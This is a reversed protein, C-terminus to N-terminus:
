RYAAWAALFWSPFDNSTGDPLAAGNAIRAGVHRDIYALATPSNLTTHFGMIRLALFAIANVRAIIHRYAVNNGGAATGIAVGLSNQRSGSTPTGTYDSVASSHWEATGLQAQTYPYALPADIDAQTIVFHQTDEAFVSNGAPAGSAYQAGQITMALAPAMWSPRNLREYGYTIVSKRWSCHGGNDNFVGGELVREAADISQQILRDDIADKETSSLTNLCLALLAEAYQYYDGGYLPGFGGPGRAHVNRSLVNWTNKWDTFVFRAALTSYAPVAIGTASLNPLSTIPLKQSKRARSVKSGAAPAPRYADAAPAATVFTFPVLESIAPRADSAVGSLVSVAKVLTGERISLASGTAGPDINWSALYPFNNTAIFEDYGQWLRPNVATTVVGHNYQQKQAITTPNQSPFAQLANGPNLELGHMQTLGTTGTTSLTRDAKASVPQVNTVTAAAAGTLLWPEGLVYSGTSVIGSTANLTASGFAISASGGTQAAALSATQVNSYTTGTVNVAKTRFTITGASEGASDWSLNPSTGTLEGTKDVGDLLFYDISVTAGSAAGLTLLVIGGVVYSSADLTPQASFVPLGVVPAIYSATSGKLIVRGANPHIFIRAM